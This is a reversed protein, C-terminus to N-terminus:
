RQADYRFTPANKLEDKSMRIYGRDPSVQNAASQDSRAV